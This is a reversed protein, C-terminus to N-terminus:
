EIRNHDLGWTYTKTIKIEIKSKSKEQQGVSNPEQEALEVLKRPEHLAISDM